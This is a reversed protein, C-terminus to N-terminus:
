LYISVLTIDDNRMADRDRQQEIWNGRAANDALETFFRDLTQWPKKAHENQKLFWQAMADTMLYLRDGVLWRAGDRKLKHGAGDPRSCILSPHNGFSDSREVPFAQVLTDKRVQFICSDGVALASWAGETKKESHKLVLGLFTAFAGQDRKEEAYWSLEQQDVKAAWRKRLPELWSADGNREGPHVFGDVLLKAWLSAFSSESAGDAVAFRGIKPDAAFADEYEEASHGRKPLTFSRWNLPNTSM